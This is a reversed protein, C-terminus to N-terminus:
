LLTSLLNNASLDALIKSNLNIGKQKLVYRFNSYNMGLQRAGANIRQIWLSKMQRKRRKRDRYEYILKNMVASQTINYCNKKRGYFGKAMKLIKKRYKHRPVSSSVKM